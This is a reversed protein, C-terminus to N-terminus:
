IDLTHGKGGSSLGAKLGVIFRGCDRSILVSRCTHGKGGSSLGTRLGVDFRGWDGSILM